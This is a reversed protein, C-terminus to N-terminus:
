RKACEIRSWAKWRAELDPIQKFLEDTLPQGDHACFLGNSQATQQSQSYTSNKSEPLHPCEGYYCQHLDDSMTNSSEKALPTLM